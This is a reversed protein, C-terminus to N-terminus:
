IFIYYDKVLFLDLEESYVKGWYELIYKLKVKRARHKDYLFDYHFGSIGYKDAYKSLKHHLKYIEPIDSFSKCNIQSSYLEGPYIKDVVLDVGDVNISILFNDIRTVSDDSRLGTYVGFGTGFNAAFNEVYFFCNNREFGVSGEKKEKKPVYYHHCTCSQILISGLIIILAIRLKKM